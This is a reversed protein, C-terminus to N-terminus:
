AAPLLDMVVVALPMAGFAVVLGTVGLARGRDSFVSVFGLVLSALVATGATIWVRAADVFQPGGSTGSDAVSLAAAILALALAVISAGLAAIGLGARRRQM